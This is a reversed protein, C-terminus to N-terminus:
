FYNEWGRKACAIGLMFFFYYFTHINGWNVKSMVVQTPTELRM